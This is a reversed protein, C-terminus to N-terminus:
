KVQPEPKTCKFRPHGMIGCGSCKHLYKCAKNTCGTVKNFTYCVQFKSSSNSQVNSNTNSNVLRPPIYIDNLIQINLIHWPLQVFARVCRFQCDYDRWLFTNPYLDKLKFIRCIYTFLGPAEDPHKQTYVAAYISFWRHWESVNTPQRMKSSTISFQSSAGAESHINLGPPAQNKHVLGGLEVFECSWIKSKTKSDLTAGAVLYSSLAEGPDNVESDRDKVELLQQVASHVAM